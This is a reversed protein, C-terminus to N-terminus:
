YLEIKTCSFEKFILEASNRLDMEEIECKAFEEFDEYDSKVDEWESEPHDKTVELIRVTIELFKM